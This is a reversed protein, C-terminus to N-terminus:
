LKLRAIQRGGDEMKVLAYVIEGDIAIKTITHDTNILRIPRGEWDFIAIKNHFLKETSDFYDCYRNEFDVIGYIRHDDAELDIMGLITRSPSKDNGYNDFDCEYFYKTSLPIIRNGSIEFTELIAGNETGIAFRNGDSSFAIPHNLVYLPALLNESVDPYGDYKCLLTSDQNFVMFRALENESTRGIQPRNMLVWGDKMPYFAERRKPPIKIDYKEVCDSENEILKNIDVLLTKKTPADFLVLKGDKKNLYTWTCGTMELPGNGRPVASAILEFRERDYINVFGNPNFNVIVFLNEYVHFGYIVKYLDLHNTLVEFNKRENVEFKPEHYRTSKGCGALLMTLLICCMVKRTM